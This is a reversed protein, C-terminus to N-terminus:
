ARGQENKSNNEDLQKFYIFDCLIDGGGSGSDTFRIQEENSSIILMYISRKSETVTLYSVSESM